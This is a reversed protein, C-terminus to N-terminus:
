NGTTPVFSVSDVQYAVILRHDWTGRMRWALAASNGSSLTPLSTRQAIEGTRTLRLVEATRYKSVFISDGDIVVDRLDPEVMVSQAAPGSAAPFTVLEGTACAVVIQDTKGDYAVGRPQACM